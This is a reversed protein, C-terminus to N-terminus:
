SGGAQELEAVKGPSNLTWDYQHDAISSASRVASALEGEAHPAIHALVAADTKGFDKAFWDYIKSVVVGGNGTVRVGRPHNVFSRAAADLEANLNAAVWPEAKLNPCSFSACNISYHIRPENMQRLIEHEINNLTLAIGNVDVLPVDWPGGSAASKIGGFLGLKPKRNEPVSISIDKISRTEGADIVVDLTVANYLNSWYAIQQNRTLDTPNIAELSAIYGDLAQRDGGSVAAYDFATIGTASVSVYTDLLRAYTSNDINVTASGAAKSFARTIERKSLIEGEALESAALPATLSLSIGVALLAKPLVTTDIRSPHSFTPM